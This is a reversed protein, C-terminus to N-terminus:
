GYSRNRRREEFHSNHWTLEKTTDGWRANYVQCTSRIIQINRSHGSSLASKPEFRRHASNSLACSSTNWKLSENATLMAIAHSSNRNVPKHQKEAKQRAKRANGRFSQINLSGSKICYSRILVANCSSFDSSCIRVSFSAVFNLLM